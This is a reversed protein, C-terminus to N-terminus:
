SVDSVYMGVYASMIWKAETSPAWQGDATGPCTSPSHLVLLPNEAALRNAWGVVWGSKLHKKKKRKKPWTVKVYDLCWVCVSVPWKADACHATHGSVLREYVM